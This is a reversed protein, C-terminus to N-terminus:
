SRADTELYKQITQEDAFQCHELMYSPNGDHFKFLQVSKGHSVFRIHFRTAMLISDRLSNKLTKLIILCEMKILIMGM